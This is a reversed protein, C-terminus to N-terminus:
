PRGVFTLSAAVVVVACGGGRAGRGCVYANTGGHGGGFCVVCGTVGGSGDHWDFSVVQLRRSMLRRWENGGAVM